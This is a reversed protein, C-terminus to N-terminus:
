TQTQSTIRLFCFTLFKRLFIHTCNYFRENQIIKTMHMFRDMLGNIKTHTVSQWFMLPLHMMHCYAELSHGSFSYRLTTCKYPKWFCIPLQNLTHKWSWVFNSNAEEHRGTQRDVDFLMAGSSTNEHFNIYLYKEIMQWSFELKM